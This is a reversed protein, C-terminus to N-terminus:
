EMTEWREPPVRHEVPRGELFALVDEGTFQGQRLRAELTNAAQHHILLCNELQFFPSNEPLPETPDTVDLLASIRGTQLERLLAPHDVLVGRATNVFLAGDKMAQFHEARLMQLAQRGDEAERSTHGQQQLGLSLKLRNTRLDDVVLVHGGESM